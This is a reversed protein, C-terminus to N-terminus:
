EDVWSLDIFLDAANKWKFIDIINREPTLKSIHTSLIKKILNTTSRTKLIASMSLKSQFLPPRHKFAM